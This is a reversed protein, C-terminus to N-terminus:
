ESKEDTELENEDEAVLRTTVKVLSEEGIGIDVLKVHIFEPVIEMVRAFKGSGIRLEVAWASSLVIGLEELLDGLRANIRIYTTRVHFKKEYEQVYIVKFQMLGKCASAVIGHPKLRGESIDSLVNDPNNENRQAIYINIDM